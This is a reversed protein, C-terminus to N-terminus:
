RYGRGGTTGDTGGFVRLHLASTRPVSLSRFTWFECFYSTPHSLFPPLLLLASFFPPLALCPSFPLPLSTYSFLPPFFPLPLSASSFLPSFPLPLSTSSFLPSLFSNNLFLPFLFILLSSTTGRPPGATVPHVFRHEWAPLDSM